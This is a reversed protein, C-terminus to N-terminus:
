RLLYLSMSAREKSLGAHCAFGRSNRYTVDLVFARRKARGFIDSEFASSTGAGRQVAAVPDAYAGHEAACSRRRYLGNAM